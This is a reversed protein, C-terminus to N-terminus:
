LLVIALFAIVLIAGIVYTLIRDGTDMTTDDKVALLYPQVIEIIPDPFIM